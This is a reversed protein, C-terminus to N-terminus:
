HQSHKLFKLSFSNMQGNHIAEFCHECSFSLIRKTVLKIQLIDHPLTTPQPVISCAPLNHIQDWTLDCFKETSRISGDLSRGHLPSLRKVSILVLVRGPPLPHSAVESGYTLRADGL